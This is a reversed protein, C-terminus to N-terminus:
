CYSCSRGVRGTAPILQIVKGTKSAYVLGVCIGPVSVDPVLM